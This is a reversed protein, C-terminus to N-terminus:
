EDVCHGATLVHKPSILSGGCLWRSSSGSVILYAQYPISHPVAEVGNTVRGSLDPPLKNLETDVFM